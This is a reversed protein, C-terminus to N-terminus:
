LGAYERLKREDVIRILNGDRAVGAKECLTALSRSFTEPAIGLMEALASKSLAPDCVGDRANRVIYRALRVPVPYMLELLTQTQRASSRALMGVMSRAFAANGGLLDDISSAPVAVLTSAQAAEIRGVHPTLTHSAAFAFPTVPYTDNLLMRRGHEVVLHRKMHGEVLVFSTDIIEGDDVLVEHSALRVVRSAAVLRGLEDENLLSFPSVGALVDYFPPVVSSISDNRGVHNGNNDVSM